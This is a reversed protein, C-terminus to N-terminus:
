LNTRFEIFRDNFEQLEESTALMSFFGVSFELQLQAQLYEYIAVAYRLKATLSSQQADILQTINVEGAQYQDRVLEFNVEANDSAVRSFGINTSTAVTNSLSTNVALELEQDLQMRSNNLQELQIRTTQYNVRRKKGAFIPYSLGIGVSWTNDPIDFEQTNSNAGGRAFTQTMQAQFAINPTYLLRKNQLNRRNVANIQQLLAEKNPNKNISENVLFRSVVKIDNPNDIFQAILSESFQKYLDDDITIDAIDFEEELTNALSTNLRFKTNFLNTNAEVVKQSAAAVESEWRLIEARSASGSNVRIRALELNTKLNELNEAEIQLATKVALVDFYDLYTNLFIQLIQAETASEQAKQLYYAIKIGAMAEESYIVQDLALQGALRREPRDLIVFTSEENVQQGNIGLDLFPLVATKAFKADQIALSIDQNSIKIGFNNKLAREMVEDLSYVPLDEQDDIFNATFMIEFSLPIGIEKVTRSNLFLDEKFNINVPMESLAEGNVAGDVMIALKRIVQGFDNKDSICAMIGNDVHFKQSSFSPIKKDKLSQAIMNVDSAKKGHLYSVYVADVDTQLSSLSREIDTGIHLIHIKASLQKKLSDLYRIGKEENFTPATSENVLITLNDFPVIQQFISLERRLEKAAWIYSFNTVRTKGFEYPIDQLQPDIVGLGVTPVPFSAQDVCGKISVSGFLIVLDTNGSIQNYQEGAGDLTKIGYRVNSAPDLVFERAPGVTKNIEETIVQFISDIEPSQSFDTVIGLNLTQANAAITAGICIYLIHLRTIMILTNKIKM